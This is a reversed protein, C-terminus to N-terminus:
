RKQESEADAKIVITDKGSVELARCLSRLEQAAVMLDACLQPMARALAKSNARAELRRALKRLDRLKATGLDVVAPPVPRARIAM